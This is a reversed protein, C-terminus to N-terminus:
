KYIGGRSDAKYFYIVLEKKRLEYIFRYKWIRLRYHNKSGILHKIDLESTLPDKQLIEIANDFRKLLGKDAKQLFKFVQKSFIIRYSM